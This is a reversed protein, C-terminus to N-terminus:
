CSKMLSIILGIDIGAVFIITYVLAKNMKEIVVMTTKM